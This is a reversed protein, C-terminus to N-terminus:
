DGFKAINLLELTETKPIGKDDWGVAEYYEKRMRKFEKRNCLEKKGGVLIPQDFFRDPLWDDERKFGCALNFLREMTLIRRATTEIDSAKYDWGTVDNLMNAFEDLTISFGSFACVGLIDYACNHYSSNRAV